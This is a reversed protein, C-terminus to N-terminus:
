DADRIWRATLVMDRAKAWAESREVAARAASAKTAMCGPGKDARVLGAPLPPRKEDHELLKKPDPPPECMALWVRAEVIRGDEDARLARLGAYAYNPDSEGEPAQIQVVRPEGGALVYRLTQAKEDDGKGPPERLTASGVLTANACDNWDKAKAAPDFTCDEDSMAWLGPRLVDHGRADAADFLPQDSGVVACAGLNLALLVMLPFRFM